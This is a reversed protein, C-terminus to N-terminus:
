LIPQSKKNIIWLANALLPHLLGFHTYLSPSPCHSPLHPFCCLPQPLCFPQRYFSAPLFRSTISFPLFQAELIFFWPWHGVLSPVLLHHLDCPLLLPRAALLCFPLLHCPSFFLCQSSPHFRQSVLLFTLISSWAPLRTSHPSLPPGLLYLIPLLVLSLLPFVCSM